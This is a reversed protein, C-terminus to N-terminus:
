EVEWADMQDARAARSAGASGHMVIYCLLDRSQCWGPLMAVDAVWPACPLGEAATLAISKFM